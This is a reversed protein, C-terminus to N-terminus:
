SGLYIGAGKLNELIDQVSSNTHIRPAQVPPIPSKHGLHPSAPPSNLIENGAALLEDYKTDDDAKPPRKKKHENLLALLNKASENKTEQNENQGSNRQSGILPIPSNRPSYGTKPSTLNLTGVHTELRHKIFQKIDGTKEEFYLHRIDYLIERARDLEDKVRKDPFKDLKLLFTTEILSKIESNVSNEDSDSGQGLIEKLENVWANIKATIKEKQENSLPM